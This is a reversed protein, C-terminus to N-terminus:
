YKEDSNIKLDTLGLIFDCCNYYKDKKNPTWRDVVNYQNQFKGELIWRSGDSGSSKEHTNLDWFNIHNIKNKLKNWTSKDIKKQKNIVLKGPEYGGAGDCLKWFLLYLDGHKEVRIAIPNNFTRLWTFRYIENKSKDAYFIPEKMAFLHKSYWSVVFREYGVFSSTDKFVDLPFYYQNSDKPIFATDIPLTYIRM